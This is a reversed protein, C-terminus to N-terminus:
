DLEDLALWSAQPLLKAPLSVLIHSPTARFCVGSAVQSSAEAPDALAVAREYIVRLAEDNMERCESYLAFRRWWGGTSSRLRSLKAAVSEFCGNAYHLVAAEDPCWYDPASVGVAKSSSEQFRHVGHPLVDCGLRAAGKGNVYALFYQARGLHIRTRRLWFMFARRAAGEDSGAMVNLVAADKATHGSGDNASDDVGGSADVAYSSASFGAGDDAGAALAGATSAKVARLEEARAIAEAREHWGPCASQPVGGGVDGDTTALDVVDELGRVDALCRPNKRFLTVAEFRNSSLLAPAEAESASVAGGIEPVGEHNVYHVVAVNEPVTAFHQPASAGSGISFLEDLDIHLLWEIGASASWRSAIEVHLEQRALWDEALRAEVAALRRCKTYESIRLADDVPLAVVRNGFPALLQRQKVLECPDDFFLFVISFRLGDLHYSLWKELEADLVGRLTSVIACPPQASAPVCGVSKPVVGRLFPAPRRLARIVRANAGVLSATALTVETKADIVNELAATRDELLQDLGSSAHCLDERVLSHEEAM